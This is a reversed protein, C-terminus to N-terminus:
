WSFISSRRQKISLSVDELVKTSGYDSIFSTHLSEIKLTEDM